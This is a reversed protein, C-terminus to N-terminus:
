SPVGLRMLELEVVVHAPTDFCWKLDDLPAAFHQKTVGCHEVALRLPLISNASTRGAQFGPNADDLLRMRNWDRRTRDTAILTAVKRLVEILCM